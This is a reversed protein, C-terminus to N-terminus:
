DRTEKTQWPQTPPHNIPSSTITLNLSNGAAEQSQAQELQGAAGARSATAPEVWGFIM